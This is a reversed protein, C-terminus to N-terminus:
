RAVKRLVADIQDAARDWSFCKARALSRRRWLAPDALVDRLAQAMADISTPDFTRAADGCVEPISTANSAAVPAGCAMAELPPIGFGEYLSPFLFVAAESYLQPLEEAPVYGTFVVRDRRRLGALTRQIEDDSGQGSRGVIVLKLDDDLLDFARLARPLNKHPRLDGVTLIYRGYRHTMPGPPRPRFRDHDVGAAVVTVKRPDLGFRHVLERRTHESDAIVAAARRVVRPMVQGVYFQLHPYFHPFALQVLDHVTVVHPVTPLLSGEPMTAYVVSLRNRHALYPLAFQAWALRCLHARTGGSPSLSPYTGLIRKPFERALSPTSAYAFTGDRHLLRRAIELTYVGIGTPTESAFTANIGVRTSM